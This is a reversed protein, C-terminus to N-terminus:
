LKEILSVNLSVRIAVRASLCHWRTFDNFRVAYEVVLAFSDCSFVALHALTKFINDRWILHVVFKPGVCKSEVFHASAWQIRTTRPISTINNAHLAEQLM